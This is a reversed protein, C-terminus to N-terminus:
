DKNGQKRNDRALQYLESDSELFTVFYSAHAADFLCRWLVFSDCFEKNHFKTTLQACM